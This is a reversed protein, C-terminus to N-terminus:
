KTCGGFFHRTASKVTMLFIILGFVATLSFHDCSVAKHKEIMRKLTDGSQCSTIAAPLIFGSRM